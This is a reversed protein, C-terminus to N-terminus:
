ARPSSRWFFTISAPGVWAYPGDIVMASNGAESGACVPFVLGAGPDDVPSATGAGRAEEPPAPSPFRLGDIVMASNGAESGACVPFVLGPASKADVVMWLHVCQHLPSLNRNIWGEPARALAEERLAENEPRALAEIEALAAVLRAGLAEPARFQSAWAECYPEWLLNPETLLAAAAPPLCDPFRQLFQTMATRQVEAIKKPDSFLTLKM